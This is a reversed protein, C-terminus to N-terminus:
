NGRLNSSNIQDIRQQIQSLPAKRFWDQNIREMLSTHGSLAERVFQSYLTPNIDGVIIAARAKKLFADMGEKNGAAGEKLARRYNKIFEKKVENELERQNKLSDSKLFTDQIEIPTLGTIASFIADFKTMDGIYMENKTIYKGTNLAM